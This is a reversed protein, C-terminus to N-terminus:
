QKFVEQLSPGPESFPLTGGMYVGLYSYPFGGLIPVAMVLWLTVLFYKAQLM